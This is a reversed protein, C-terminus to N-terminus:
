RLTCPHYEESYFQIQSGARILHNVQIKRLSNIRQHKIIKQLQYNKEIKFKLIARKEAQDVSFDIRKILSKHRKFLYKLLNSKFM